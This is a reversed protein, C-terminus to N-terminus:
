INLSFAALSLFQISGTLATHTASVTNGESSLLPTSPVDANLYPSPKEGSAKVLNVLVRVVTWRLGQKQPKQLPISEQVPVLVLVNKYHRNRKLYFRSLSWTGGAKNVSYGRKVKGEKFLPTVAFLVQDSLLLLTSTPITKWGQM